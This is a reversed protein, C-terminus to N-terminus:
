LDFKFTKTLIEIMEVLRGGRQAKLTDVECVLAIKIKKGKKLVSANGFANVIEHLVDNTDFWGVM